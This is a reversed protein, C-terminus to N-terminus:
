GQDGQKRRLEGNKKAQGVIGRSLVPWLPKKVIFSRKKESEENMDDFAQDYRHIAPYIV